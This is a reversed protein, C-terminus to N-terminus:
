RFKSIDEIQQSLKNYEQIRENQDRLKSRILIIFALVVVAYCVFSFIWIDNVIVYNGYVMMLQQVGNRDFWMFFVHYEVGDIVVTDYGEHGDNLIDVLEEFQTLDEHQVEIIEDSVRIRLTGMLNENFFEIENGLEPKYKLIEEILGETQFNEIDEPIFMADVRSMRFEGIKTNM